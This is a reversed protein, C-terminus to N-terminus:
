WVAEHDETVGPFRVPIVEGGPAALTGEFWGIPQVYRSRAFPLREDAARLGAPTFALDCGEGRVRWPGGPDATAPALEAVDLTYPVGDWWVVDEGAGATNMGTSVNIGVPRGDATWGAGAAWRWTTRRDQRGATWDRWGAGALVPWEHAGLAVVGRAPYGAAKRTVNWGGGPTRTALVAPTGRGSTLRARLRGEDTPVDLELGGDGHVRVTGGGGALYASGDPTVPVHAGRRLAARHEWTYTRGELQAWAFAVAVPGIDVVAAGVAVAEDAAAAYSWRRVRGRTPGLHVPDVDISGAYLGWPLDRGPPPSPPLPDM